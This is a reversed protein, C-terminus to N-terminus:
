ESYLSLYPKPWDIGYLENVKEIHSLPTENEIEDLYSLFEKGSRSSFVKTDYGLRDRVDKEALYRAFENDVFIADCYPLVTSILQVDTMTGSGPPRRQGSAAKRAMAAYLLSSIRLSPIKQLCPSSLYELTTPWLDDKCIGADEMAAHISHITIVSAPPLFDEISLNARGAQFETM